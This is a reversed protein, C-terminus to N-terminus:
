AKPRRAWAVADELRKYRIEQYIYAEGDHVIGFQAMLEDHSPPESVRPVERNCFRCVIAEAKISEACFPCTKTGEAVGETAGRDPAKEIKPFFAVLLGFPGFVLGMFFWAAGNRNKSSALAASFIACLLWFIVYGM